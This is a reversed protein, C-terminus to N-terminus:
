GVGSDLVHSPGGLFQGSSRVIRYDVCVENWVRSGFGWRPGTRRGCCGLLRRFCAFLRIRFFGPLESIADTLGEIHDAATNSGANGARLKATLFETTNDCWVGLPHYGFTRKFTAAAQEKESHAVTITADFDICLEESLDPGAGAAWARERAVARAARVAPLHVADVRDLVRWATPM